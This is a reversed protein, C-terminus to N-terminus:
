RCTCHWRIPFADSHKRFPMYVFLPVTADHQRAIRSVERSFVSVSVWGRSDPHHVALDLTPSPPPNVSPHTSAGRHTRRRPSSTRSPGTAFTSSTGTTHLGPPAPTRSISRPVTSTDSTPTSAASPPPSASTATASTGSGSPTPATQECCRHRDSIAAVACGGSRQQM